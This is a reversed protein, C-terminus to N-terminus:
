EEQDITSDVTIVRNDEGFSLKSYKVQSFTPKVSDLLQELRDNYDLRSQVHEDATMFHGEIVASSDAPDFVKVSNASKYDDRLISM